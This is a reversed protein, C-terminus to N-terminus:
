GHTYTIFRPNRVEYPEWNEPRRLRAADIINLFTAGAAGPTPRTLGSKLALTSLVIKTGSRRGTINIPNVHLDRLRAELADMAEDDDSSDCARTFNAEASSPRASLSPRPYLALDAAQSVVSPSRRGSLPISWLPLPM